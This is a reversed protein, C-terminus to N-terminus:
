LEVQAGAAAMEKIVAYDELELAAAGTLLQKDALPKLEPDDLAAFLGERLAQLEDDTVDGRTIFPLGPAAETECLIRIGNTLDPRYRQHLALTVGDIAACQVSKDQVAKLSDRHAGTMVTREFFQDGPESVSAVLARLANFGSQSDRANVAVDLGRLDRLDSVNLDEPVIIMSRYTPGDCGPADYIPTAVMRVRGELLFMLPFGCTQSFLLNKDLWHELVSDPKTLLEPARSAGAARMHRAVGRWWAAVVDEQEPLTYMPMSALGATAPFPVINASTSM